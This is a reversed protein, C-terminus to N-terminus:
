TCGGERGGERGEERGGERGGTGGQSLSVRVRVKEGGEEERLAPLIGGPRITATRSNEITVAM